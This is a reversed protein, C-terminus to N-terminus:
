SYRERNNERSLRDLANARIRQWIDENQYLAVIKKAFMEPHDSDVSLLDRGDEWKMQRRLLETAVVPLGYSAAEYVKYPQGAAYRTPAVFIRHQDYLPEINGVSGCLAIRPHNAFRELSVEPATYGVITLQTHWGLAQEVIPLVKNVFWELSDFNPSEM